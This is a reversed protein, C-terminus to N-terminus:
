CECGEGWVERCLVCSVARGGEECERKWGGFCEAHVNRGCGKKCWGVVRAALLEGEADRFEECCIPCEDEGLARRRAHQDTCGETCDCDESPWPTRCFACRVDREDALCQTRWTTFCDRHVSRGCSSRCWTLSSAPLSSLPEGDFCISCQEDLPLRRVHTRPCPPSRRQPPSPATSSPSSTSTSTSVPSSRSQMFSTLNAVMAPTVAPLPSSPVSETSLSATRSASSTRPEADVARRTSWNSSNDSLTSPARSLHLSSIDSTSVRSITSNNQVLQNMMELLHRTTERLRELEADVGATNEDEDDDEDDDEGDENEDETNEDEDEEESYENGSDDGEVDNDESDYAESGYDDSDYEESDEDETEEYVPPYVDTIMRSWKAVQEYVQSKRHWRVCLGLQALEQLESELEEADPEQAELVRILYNFSSVDRANVPVTCKRRKSPAYGVCLGDSCLKLTERANWLRPM